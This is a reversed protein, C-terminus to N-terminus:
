GNESRKKKWSRHMDCANQQACIDGNVDYVLGSDVRDVYGDGTASVKM